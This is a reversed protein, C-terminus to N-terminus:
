GNKTKNTKECFKAILCIRRHQNQIDRYNKWIRVWFYGFWTNKSEFKPRQMTEHIKCKSLNSPASKLYSLITKLNWDLFVWILGKKTEFKEMNNKRWIKRKSSTSPALKLYPLIKLVGEGFSFLYHMKPRLNWSKWKKLFKAILCIPRPQSWILCKKKWIQAWFYWFLEKKTGFKPIIKKELFKATLCIQLHQYWM